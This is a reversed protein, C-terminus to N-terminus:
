PNKAAIHTSPVYFNFVGQLEVMGKKLHPFKVVYDVDFVGLKHTSHFGSQQQM